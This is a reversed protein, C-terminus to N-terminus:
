LGHEGRAHHPTARLKARYEAANRIGMAILPEAMAQQFTLNKKLTPSMSEWVARLSPDTHPDVVPGLPLDLTTPANM